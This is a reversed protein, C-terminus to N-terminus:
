GNVAAKKILKLVAKRIMFSDSGFFIMYGERNEVIKSVGTDYLLTLDLLSNDVVSVQIKNVSADISKINNVGGVANVFSDVISHQSFSIFDLAIIRYYLQTSLFYIVFVLVGLILFRQLLQTNKLQNIVVLLDPLNGPNAYYINGSFSYGIFINFASMLGFLMGTTILHVILLFPAAILLYLEFPLLNGFMVSSLVAIIMFTFNKKKEQKNTFITWSAITVAPIAFINLIYYPSILRGAGLSAIGSNVQVTWINVDGLYNVGFENLWSGGYSGFWFANQTISNLGLMHMIRSFVGYSFLTAPNTIDEALTQMVYQIGQIFYPWVFTLAFGAFYSVVMTTIITYTDRDIFSLIGQTSRNRSFRYIKRTLFIVVAVSIVGMQLPYASGSGFVSLESLNISVGLISAYFEAGLTQPAFFTSTAIIVIYGMIGAFIPVSSDYRRSLLKILILLPFNSIIFAGSYRLLECVVIINQNTIPIIANFYSSLLLTGIGRLIFSFFLVKLPFQMMELMAHWKRM